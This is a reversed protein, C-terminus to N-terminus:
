QSRREKACTEQAVVEACTQLPLAADLLETADSPLGSLGSSIPQRSTFRWGSPSGSRSAHDHFRLHIALGLEGALTMAASGRAVFVQKTLKPPKKDIPDVADM